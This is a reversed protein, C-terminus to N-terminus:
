KKEQDKSPVSNSRKEKKEEHKIQNNLDELKKSLLRDNLTSDAVSKINSSNEPSNKKSTNLSEIISQQPKKYEKAFLGDLDSLVAEEEKVKNSSAM